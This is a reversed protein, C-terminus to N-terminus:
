RRICHMMPKQEDGRGMKLSLRCTGQISELQSHLSCLESKSSYTEHHSLEPWFVIICSAAHSLLIWLYFWGPHFTQIVESKYAVFQDFFLLVSLQSLLISMALYNRGMWTGVWKYVNHGPVTLQVSYYLNIFYYMNKKKKKKKGFWNFICYTCIIFM